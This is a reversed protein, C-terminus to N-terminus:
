IFRSPLTTVDDFDCNFLAVYHKLDIKTANGSNLRPM